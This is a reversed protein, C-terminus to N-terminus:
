AVGAWCRELVRLGERIEHLIKDAIDTQEATLRVEAFFAAVQEVTMACVDCINKEGVRVTRAEARL